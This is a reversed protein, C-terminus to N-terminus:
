SCMTPSHVLSIVVIKQTQGLQILILLSLLQKLFLTLLNQILSTTFLDMMQVMFMTELLLTTRQNAM